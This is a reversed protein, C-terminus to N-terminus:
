QSRLTAKGSYRKVSPTALGRGDESAAAVASPPWDQSQSTRPSQGISTLEQWSFARRERMSADMARKQRDRPYIEDVEFSRLM